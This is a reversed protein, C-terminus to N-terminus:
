FPSVLASWWSLFVSKIWDVALLVFLAVALTFTLSLRKNRLLFEKALVIAAAGGFLLPYLWAHHVLVGPTYYGLSELNRNLDRSYGALAGYGAVYYMCSLVTASWALAKESAESSLPPATLPDEGYENAGATGKLFGLEVLSWLWGLGPFLNIGVMWGSKGRDHWRKVQIALNAWMVVLSFPATLALLLFDVKSSLQALLAFPLFIVVTGLSVGVTAVWFGQRTIRGKLSSLTWWPALASQTM